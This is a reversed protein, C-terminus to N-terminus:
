HCHPSPCDVENLGLIVHYFYSLFGVGVPLSRHHKNNTVTDLTPHTLCFCLDLLPVDTVCSPPVTSPCLM